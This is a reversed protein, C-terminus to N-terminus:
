SNATPQPLTIGHRQAQGPPAPLQVPAVLVTADEERKSVSSGIRV